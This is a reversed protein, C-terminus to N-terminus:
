AYVDLRTGPAPPNAAKIDEVLAAASAEQMNMAKKLIAVSAQQQVDALKMQTSYAAVASIDM